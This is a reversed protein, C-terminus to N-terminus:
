RRGAGQRQAGERDPLKRARQDIQQARNLVTVVNGQASDEALGRANEIGADGTGIVTIHEDLVAYPDDLQYTM